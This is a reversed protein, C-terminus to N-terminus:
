REDIKAHAHTCIDPNTSLYHLTFAITNVSTKSGTILLTLIKHAINANDLMDSIDLDAVDLMVDLVDNREESCPWPRRAEIIKDIQQHIYKKDEYYTSRYSCDNTDYFCM